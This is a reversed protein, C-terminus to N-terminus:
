PTTWTRSQVEGGDAAWLLYFQFATAGTLPINNGTIRFQDGANLTGGRGVDVWYIRYVTGGVTISAFSGSTSPMAVSSGTTAGAQLNMRHSAAARAPEARAVAFTANGDQSVSTFTVLPPTEIVPDPSLPLVLFAFLAVLALMTVILFVVVFSVM